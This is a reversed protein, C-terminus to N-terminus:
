KPEVAGVYGEPGSQATVNAAPGTGSPALFSPDSPDKSTFGFVAGQKGASSSLDIENPGRDTRTTMNFEIPFRSFVKPDYGEEVVADADTNEAFLNRRFVIDDNGADPMTAFVIGRTTKFFTNNRVIINRLRPQGTVSIGILMDAFISEAMELDNAADDIVLGAALPGLVRLKLLSAHSTTTADGSALRIGVGETGEGRVTVNEIRLRDNGVGGSSGRGLIGTGTVGDIVLNRLKTGALYGGLEIVAARNRGDLQFGEFEFQDLSILRLVPGTGEPSLVAPQPGDSILRIKKPFSFDRNDIDIAERYTNGGRVKLIQPENRGVPYYKRVYELAEGITAFHGDAGVVIEKGILNLSDAPPSGDNRGGVDPSPAVPSGENSPPEGGRAIILVVVFLVVVVLGGAAALWVVNPVTPKPKRQTVASRPGITMPPATELVEFSHFESDPPGVPFHVPAPAPQRRKALPIDSQPGSSKITAPSPTTRKESSPKDRQTADRAPGPTGPSGKLSSPTKVSTSSRASGPQRDGTRAGSSERQPLRVGGNASTNQEASNATIWAALVEAVEKATQYRDEPRKAMMKVAIAALGNPTDPRKASLPPAAKTQHAMLRQALTGETFPPSGTLLFYLTCGLSYIDARADVKHSDLAQEPALYDATGLVKEDHAVTLSHDDDQGSVLALGLDLIRVVGNPDLLLNGPKIDRHILGAQHAYALGEAAQRIYDAAQLFGIVGDQQVVEHLSRGEVYEMVLFHIDHEGDKEHDVDYARVINPHDLSAVAQAERHFRGLYSSDNVRKSPLVKIACRRRMLKHEALYVASMGGKGLLSLLRYKGLTFGKHRGQLLKDCQWRTLAGRRVLEEALSETDAAGIEGVVRELQDDSILGSNRVCAIFSEASLKTAM